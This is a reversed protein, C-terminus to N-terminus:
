LVNSDLEATQQTVPTTLEAEAKSDLETTPQAVLAASEAEAKSKLYAKYRNNLVSGEKGTGTPTQIANYRNALVNSD